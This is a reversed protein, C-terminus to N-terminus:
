IETLRTPFEEKKKIPSKLTKLLEVLSNPCRTLCSLKGKQRVSADQM